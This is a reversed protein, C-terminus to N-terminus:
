IGGNQELLALETDAIWQGLMEAHQKNEEAKKYLASLHEEATMNPDLGLLEAQHALVLRTYEAEDLEWRYPNETTGDGKLSYARGGVEDCIQAMTPPECQIVIEGENATPITNFKQWGIFYRNIDNTVFTYITM